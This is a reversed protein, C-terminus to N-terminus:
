DGLLSKAGAVLIDNIWAFRMFDERIPKGAARIRKSAEAVAAKVEPHEPDGPHGLAQSLDMLGFSLYDIGELRAIDAAADLAARTEIMISVSVAENSAALFAPKDAIGHVFKPRSGGFSRQGRPAYYAAEIVAEADAVSEVHPVIVGKVGRDLFRTITAVSADPVRAIPTLGHREATICAAEIDRWEFCGHEGDLYVFDLGLLALAEIVAPMAFTMHVGRITTGEAIARKLHNSETM